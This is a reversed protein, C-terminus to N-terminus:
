AQEVPIWTEGDLPLGFWERDMSEGIDEARMCEFSTGDPYTASTDIITIEDDFLQVAIRDGNIWLGTIM